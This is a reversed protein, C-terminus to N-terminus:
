RNKLARKKYVKIAFLNNNDDSAKFVKGFSGKGIEALFTYQNVKKLGKLSKQKVIKHTQVVKASNSDTVLESLQKSYSSYNDDNKTESDSLTMTETLYNDSSYAKTLSQIKFNSLSYRGKKNNVDIKEEESQLSLLSGSKKRALDLLNTRRPVSKSTKMPPREIKEDNLSESSSSFKELMPSPPIINILTLTGESNVILCQKTKLLPMLPKMKIIQKSRLSYSSGM